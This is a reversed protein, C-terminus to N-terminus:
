GTRRRDRSRISCGEVHVCRRCRWGLNDRATGETSNHCSGRVCDTRARSRRSAKFQSDGSGTCIACHVLRRRRRRSATTSSLWLYVKSGCFLGWSDSIMWKGQRQCAGGADDGVIGGGEGVNIVGGIDTGRAEVLGAAEM